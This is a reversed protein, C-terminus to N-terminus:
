DVLADHRQWVENTMWKSSKVIKTSLGSNDRVDYCGKYTGYTQPQTLPKSPRVISVPKQVHFVSMFEWGGCMVESGGECPLKCQWDDKKLVPRKNGCYCDALLTCAVHCAHRVHAVM